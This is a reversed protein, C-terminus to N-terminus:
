RAILWCEFSNSTSMVTTTTALSTPIALITTPLISNTVTGKLESGLIWNVKSVPQQDKIVKYALMFSVLGLTTAAENSLKMFKAKTIAFTVVETMAQM